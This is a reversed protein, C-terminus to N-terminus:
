EEGGLDAIESFLDVRRPGMSSQYRVTVRVPLLACDGSHDLKDILTDGNLDRPMGLEADNSDERLMGELEPFAIEGVFGDPDDALAVLGPVAFASGPATGKGGPDDLPNSNFSAWRDAANMGRIREIVDRAAGAALATRRRENQSRLMEGVAGSYIAITVTIVVMSIMIELLTFGRRSV